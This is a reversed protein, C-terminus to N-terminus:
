RGNILDSVANVIIPNKNQILSQISYLRSSLRRVLPQVPEPKEEIAVSQSEEDFSAEQSQQSAVDIISPHDDEEEEGHSSEEEEIDKPVVEEKVLGWLSLFYALCFLVASVTNVISGYRWPCSGFDDCWSMAAVVSVCQIIMAMLLFISTPRKNVGIISLLWAVFAFVPGLIVCIQATSMMSFRNGVFLPEYQSCQEITTSTNNTTDQLASSTPLSTEYRFLGIATTDNVDKVLDFAQFSVSDYDFWRCSLTSSIAFFIGIGIFLSLVSKVYVNRPNYPSKSFM